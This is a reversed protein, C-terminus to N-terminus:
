KLESDIEEAFYKSVNKSKYKKRIGMISDMAEQMVEAHKKDSFDNLDSSYKTALFLYSDTISNRHVITWFL